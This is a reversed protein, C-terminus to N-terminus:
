IWANLFAFTIEMPLIQFHNQYYPWFCRSKPILRTKISSIRPSQSNGGLLEYLESFRLITACLNCMVFGLQIVNEKTTSSSSSKSIIIIHYFAWINNWLFLLTECSKGKERANKSLPLRNAKEHANESKIHDRQEKETLAINQSSTQHKRMKGQWECPLFNMTTERLSISDQDTKM